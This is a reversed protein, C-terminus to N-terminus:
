LRVPAVGSVIVDGEETIIVEVPPVAQIDAMTYRPTLLHVTQNASGLMGQGLPQAADYRGAILVDVCRLLAAAAPLAQIEEWTYGTFVLISLTTERRIRQLLALLAAAQQLPEGGSFSVGEIADGLATIRALLAAAPAFEGGQPDHMAPNFCGPCRLTCGQVWIVARNGPGNARSAPLFRAVRLAEGAPGGAWSTVAFQDM